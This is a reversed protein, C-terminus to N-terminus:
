PVFVKVYMGVQGLITPLLGGASKLPRKCAVSLPGIVIDGGAGEGFILGGAGGEGFGLGGLGGIVLLGVLYSTVVL